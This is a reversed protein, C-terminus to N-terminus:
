KGLNDYKLEIRGAKSIVEGIKRAPNGAVISYDEINKTVVSNSAILCCKGISVGKMVLSHAGLFCCAGIEVPEYEYNEKGESLAWKITDHTFIQVGAALVCHEGIKLGGTGDISCFPGIWTNRGIQVNGVVTTSNYIIVNTGKGAIFEGREKWSILDEYFPNIRKYQKWTKARLWKSLSFLTQRLINKWM